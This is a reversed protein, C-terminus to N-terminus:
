DFIFYGNKWALAQEVGGRRKEIKGSRGVIAQDGPSLKAERTGARVTVGGEVLTTTVGNDSPYASVNFRTGTVVISTGNAVVEFPRAEDKAVEFYAEGNLEVSRKGNTFSVPYTLITATNVWVDTGDPLTLQFQKGNPIHITNMSQTGHETAVGGSGPHAY